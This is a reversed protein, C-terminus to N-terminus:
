TAPTRFLNQRWAPRRNRFLSEPSSPMFQVSADALMQCGAEIFDPLGTEIFVLSRQRRRLLRPHFQLAAFVHQVHAGVIIQPQGVMRSNHLRRFLRELAPTVAERRNSKDAAFLGDM